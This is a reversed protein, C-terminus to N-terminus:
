EFFFGSTSIRYEASDVNNSKIELRHLFFTGKGAKEKISFYLSDNESPYESPHISFSHGKLPEILLCSDQLKSEINWKNFNRVQSSGAPIPVPCQSEKAHWEVSYLAVQPDTAETIISSKEWKALREDLYKERDNDSLEQLYLIDDYLQEAEKNTMQKLMQKFNNASMPLTIDSQQSFAKEIRQNIANRTISFFNCGPIVSSLLFLIAFSQAIWNIRHTRMTILGICVMYFWLNLLVVYLRSVSIGYDYIRRGIAVSMLLLLPLMLMPLLRMFRTVFTHQQEERKQHLYPYILMILGISGMMLYSVYYCVGGKPLEFTLLIKGGYFYLELLFFVVIPFYIFRVVGTLFKPTNIERNVREEGEPLRSIWLYILLTFLTTLTITSFWKYPIDIGFLTSLAFVSASIASSAMGCIVTCIIGYFAMRCVQNWSAIDNKEAHYPLFIGGVQIALIISAHALYLETNFHEEPLLWLIFADILLLSQSMLNTKLVKAKNDVGEGWFEILASLLLGITLYYTIVGFHMGSIMIHAKNYENEFSVIDWIYLYGWVTAAALFCLAQPFRSIAQKLRAINKEVSIKM